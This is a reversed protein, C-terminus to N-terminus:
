VGQRLRGLLRSLSSAIAIGVAIAAAASLARFGTVSAADMNGHVAYLMTEYLGGGPVFPIIGPIIYVTAPKKLIVAFLESCAGVWLAGAFYGAVPSALGQGAALYVLWGTGGFLSAWFIDYRNIYYFYAFSATATFALAFAPLYSNWTLIATSYSSEVPFLILGFAAGISLAAAIVFAEMLRASGAVLDGSIIDRIANVIAVGPVLSMLVSISVNGSSGIIGFLMLLGTLLSIIGGGVVSTIFSSLGFRSVSYLAMRLCAGVAFAALAEPLSGQFLLSFSFSAVATALIVGFPGHRPSTRIRKLLSAVQKLNSAKGRGVLRRSLENVRAIIGLNITRNSIRELRTHSRGEKDQCTLMAVTPTVFASSSVAGLSSAVSIMTEETRYTEGGNQLIMVGSELAIDIIADVPSERIEAMYVNYSTSCNRTLSHVATLISYLLVFELWRFSNRM